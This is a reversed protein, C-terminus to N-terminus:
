SAVIGMSATRDGPTGVVRQLLSSDHEYALRDLAEDITLFAGEPFKAERMVPVAGDDARMVYWTIERPVGRTNLYRTVFTVTPDPVKAVVGAEEEVERLATTLHDEGPDVHGKPFVWAGSAERICLVRGRDDFVVGGAGEVPARDSM